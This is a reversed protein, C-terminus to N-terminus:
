YNEMEPGEGVGGRVGGKAGGRVGGRAGQETFAPHKQQLVEASAVWVRRIDMQPSGFVKERPEKVQVVMMLSCSTFMM